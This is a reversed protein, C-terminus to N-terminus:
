GREFLEAPLSLYDRMHQEYTAQGSADSLDLRLENIVKVSMEMWGEWSEQSIHEFIFAGVADEFPQFRMRQGVRGTRACRVEGEGPERGDDPAPEDIALLESVESSLPAGLRRLNQSAANSTMLEGRRASSQYCVQWAEVAGDVDGERELADGLLLFARTYSPNLRTVHRLVPAAEAARDADLLAQGLAFHALDDDPNAKAMKRYQEIMEDTM